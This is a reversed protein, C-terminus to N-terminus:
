GIASRSIPEQVPRIHLRNDWLPAINRAVLGAIDQNYRRSTNGQPHETGHLDTDPLM